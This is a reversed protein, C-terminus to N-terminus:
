QKARKNADGGGGSWEGGGGRGGQGKGKGRGGGGFNGNNFGILNEPQMPQNDGGGGSGDINFGHPSPASVLGHGTLTGVEARAARNSNVEQQARCNNCTAIAARPSLRTRM